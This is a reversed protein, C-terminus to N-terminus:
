SFGGGDGETVNGTIGVTLVFLESRIFLLKLFECTSRDNIATNRVMACGTFSSMFCSVTVSCVL